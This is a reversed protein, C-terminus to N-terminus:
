IAYFCKYQVSYRKIQDWSNIFPAIYEKILDNVDNLKIPHIKNYADKIYNLEDKLIKRKGEERTIKYSYINLLLNELRNINVLNKMKIADHVLEYEKNILM